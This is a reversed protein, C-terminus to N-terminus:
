GIEHRQQDDMDERWLKSRRLDSRGAMMFFARFRPTANERTARPDKTPTHEPHAATVHFCTSWWGFGHYAVWAATETPSATSM